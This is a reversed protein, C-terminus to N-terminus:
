RLRAPGGRGENIGFQMRVVIPHTATAMKFDVLNVEEPREYQISHIADVIVIDIDPLLGELEGITPDFLSLRIRM